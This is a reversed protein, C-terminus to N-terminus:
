IARVAIDKEDCGTVEALRVLMKMLDVKSKNSEIYDGTSLYLPSRLREKNSSFYKPYESKMTLYGAPRNLIIAEVTKVLVDKWTKVDQEVGFLRVSVPKPQTITPLESLSYETKVQAQIPENECRLIERISLAMRHTRYQITTADWVISEILRSNLYLYETKYIEKKEDFAKQGLESNKKTLTLNGLLHVGERHEQRSARQWATCWTQPMIHEVTYDTTNHDSNFVSELKTLLYKTLNYNSIYIPIKELMKIASDLYLWRNETLLYQTVNDTVSYDKFTVPQTNLIQRRIEQSLLIELTDTLHQWSVAHRYYGSWLRFIVPKLWDAKLTAFDSDDWWDGISWVDEKPQIYDDPVFDISVEKAKLTSVIAYLQEWQETCYNAVKYGTDPNRLACVLLENYGQVVTGNETILILGIHRQPQIRKATAILEEVTPPPENPNQRYITDANEIFEFIDQM